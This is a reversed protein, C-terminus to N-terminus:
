ASRKTQTKPQPRPFSPSELAEVKMVLRAFDTEDIGLDLVAALCRQAQLIEGGVRVSM